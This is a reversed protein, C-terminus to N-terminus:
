LKRWLRLIKAHGHDMNVVSHMSLFDIYGKGNVDWEKAGKTHTLAVPYPAFEGAVYDDYVDVVKQTKASINYTEETSGM